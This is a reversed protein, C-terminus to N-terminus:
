FDDKICRIPFGESRAGVSNQMVVINNVTLYWAVNTSSPGSSTWYLGFWGANNLGISSQRYGTAPFFLSANTAPNYFVNGIHAIQQNTASVTSLSGASTGPGGTIQRRDFFGDAYYGWTSNQRNDTATSQPHLWLSQRM